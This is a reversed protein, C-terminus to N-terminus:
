YDKNSYRNAHEDKILNCFTIYKEYANWVREDQHRLLFNEHELEWQADTRVLRELERRPMELTVIEERYTTFQVAFANQMGVNKDYDHHYDTKIGQIRYKRM